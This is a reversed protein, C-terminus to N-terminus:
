GPLKAGCTNCRAETWLNGMGCKPCRKDGETSVGFPSEPAPESEKRQRRLMVLTALVGIAAAIILAFLQTTQDV